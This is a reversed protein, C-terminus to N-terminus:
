DMDLAMKRITEYRQVGLMQYVAQMPVGAQVMHRAFAIRLDMLRLSGPYGLKRARSKLEVLLMGRRWATIKDCPSVAGLTLRYHKLRQSVTDPIPIVRPHEGKIYLAEKGQARDVVDHWRLALFEGRSLGAGYILAFAANYALITANTGEFSSLAICQRTSPRFKKSM